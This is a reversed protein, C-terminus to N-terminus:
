PIPMPKRETWNLIGRVMRYIWWIGLVGLVLFGLGLAWVLAFGIVTWLLGWWFTRIQWRFHSEYLTGRLDDLKVHNIIIAVIATVGVFMSLGYLVYTILTIQRAAPDDRLLLTSPPQSTLDNM